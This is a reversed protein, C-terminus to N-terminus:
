SENGSTLKQIIEPFNPFSINYVSADEIIIDGVKLGIIYFAMALRHDMHSKVAGGHVGGRIILGDSKETVSVGLKSLEIACTHIRDTEKFRAHEVGKITTTGEAMAGLAAVTPLLDPANQLNVEIGKLIGQGQIKVENNKVKVESGMDKVIELIQKDGQKSNNPLNQVTLDSNLSAAAAILYSASSYDGEVSYDRSRYIQPEIHFSKGARDYNVDVKFKKMIDLTMDVYPKSIFDGKIHLDVNTEAYPAAMLISSIYQSSVNGNICTKGGKFGGRIIIPPKGNNRTSFASVGLPILADLLNQMPRSRLSKDGTLVTYGDTLSAIGTIIRLTTGSNKLDLVNKPTKPKGHVGIIECYTKHKKVNSGLAICSNLSALTDESYLPDKIISVGEALSAIIFARHTYSKSPPAKVTGDIRDAAQVMIEM